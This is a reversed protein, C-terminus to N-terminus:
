DGLLRGFGLRDILFYLEAPTHETNVSGLITIITANQLVGVAEEDTLGPSTMWSAAKWSQQAIVDSIDVTYTYWGGKQVDLPVARIVVYKDVRFIFFNLYDLPLDAPLYIEYSITKESLDFADHGILGWTPFNLNLQSGAQGITAYIKVSKGGSHVNTTDIALSSNPAYVGIAALDTLNAFNTSWDSVTTFSGWTRTIPM